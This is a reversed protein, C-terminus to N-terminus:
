KRRGKGLGRLEVMNSRLNALVNRGFDEENEKQHNALYANIADCIGSLMFNNRHVEHRMIEISDLIYEEEKRTM